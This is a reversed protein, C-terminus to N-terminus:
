LEREGGGPRQMQKWGGYQYRRCNTKSFLCCEPHAEALFHMQAMRM